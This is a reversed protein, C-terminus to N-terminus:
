DVERKSYLSQLYPFPDAVDVRHRRAEVLHQVGTLPSSRKSIAFTLVRRGALRREAVSQIVGTPSWSRTLETLPPVFASADAFHETMAFVALGGPALVRHVDALCALKDAVYQLVQVGWALDVSADRVPLAQVDALVRHGRWSGSTRDLGCVRHLPWHHAIEALTQGDGCGMDLIRLSRSVDLRSRVLAFLEPGLEHEISLLGSSAAFMGRDRVMRGARTALIGSCGDAQCALAYPDIESVKAVSIAILGEACRVAHDLSAVDTTTGELRDHEAVYRELLWRRLSADIPPRFQGPFALLTALNSPIVDWASVIELDTLIPMRGRFRFHERKIDGVVIRPQAGIWEGLTGVMDLLPRRASLTGARVHTLLRAAFAAPTPWGHTAIAPIAAAASESKVIGAAHLRALYTVLAALEERQPATTVGVSGLDEYLIAGHDADAWRVAPLSVGRSSLFAHAQLSATATSSPMVKLIASSRAARVRYTQTLDALALPTLRVAAPAWGAEALAARARTHSERLETHSLSRRKARAVGVQKEAARGRGDTM